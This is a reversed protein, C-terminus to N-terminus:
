AMIWAAKTGPAVRRADADKYSFVFRDDPQVEDLQQLAGTELNDTLRM